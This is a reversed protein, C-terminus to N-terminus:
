SLICFGWHSRHCWESYHISAKFTLIEQLAELASLKNENIVNGVGTQGAPDKREGDGEQPGAPVLAPFCLPCEPVHGLHLSLCFRKQCLLALLPGMQVRCVALSGSPPKAM